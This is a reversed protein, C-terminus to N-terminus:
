HTTESDAAIIRDDFMTAVDIRDFHYERRCFECTVDISGIEEIIDDLEQKGLSILSITIKERTCSCHHRIAVAEFLRVDEESYLRHLITMVDLQLLEEATITDSLTVVRNWLDSDHLLDTTEPMEQVLLGAIRSRDCVLWLETKLQVSKQFYENIAASISAQNLEIISQYREKHRESELTIVLNANGFLTPLDDRSTEDSYEAVARFTRKSTVQVVLLSIEGNGQIQLTISGDYKLTSGLLLAAAICEGLKQRVNDPYHHRQLVAQWSSELQVIEGRINSAEFVFRQSQDFAPM